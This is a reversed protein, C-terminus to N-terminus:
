NEPHDMPVGYRWCISKVVGEHFSTWGAREEPTDLAAPMTAFLPRADVVALCMAVAKIRLDFMAAQLVFLGGGSIGFASLRETDVDPRKVLVDVVAHLRRRTRASSWERWLFCDRDPLDVTATHGRAHAQHGIYFLDEAFTEGGGIM